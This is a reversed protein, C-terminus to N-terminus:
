DRDVDIWQTVDLRAHPSCQHAEPLTKYAAAAAPGFHPLVSLPVSPHERYISLEDRTDTVPMGAFPVARLSLERLQQGSSGLPASLVAVESGAWPGHGAWGPDAEHFAQEIAKEALQQSRFRETFMTALDVEGLRTDLYSRTEEWVTAVVGLAGEAANLCANFLGGFDPELIAQVRRDIEELDAEALADQFRQVSDYVTPCGPPM